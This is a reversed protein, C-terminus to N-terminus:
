TPSANLFPPIAGLLAGFFEIFPQGYEIPFPPLKELSFFPIHRFFVHIIAKSLQSPPLVADALASGFSPQLKRESRLGPALNYSLKKSRKFFFNFQLLRRRPHSPGFSSLVPDATSSTLLYDPVGDNPLFSSTLFFLMSNFSIWLGVRDIM